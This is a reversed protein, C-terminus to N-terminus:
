KLYTMLESKKSIPQIDEPDYVGIWDTDHNAPKQVRHLLWIYNTRMDGPTAWGGMQSNGSDVIEVAGKPYNTPYRGSSLCAPGVLTFRSASSLDGDRTAQLSKNPWEFDAECEHRFM